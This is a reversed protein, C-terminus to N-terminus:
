CSKQTSRSLCAQRERRVLLVEEWKRKIEAAKKQKSELIQQRKLERFEEQKEKEIKKRQWLEAHSIADLFLQVPPESPDFPNVTNTPVKDLARLQLYRDKALQKEKKRAREAKKILISSERKLQKAKQVKCKFIKKKNAQIKENVEATFAKNVSKQQEVKMLIAKQTEQIKEVLSVRMEEAIRHKQIKSQEIKELLRGRMQKLESIRQEREMALIEDVRLEEQKRWQQFEYDDRLESLFRTLDYYDQVQQKTILNHSYLISSLTHQVPTPKFTLSKSKRQIGPEVTEIPRSAARPKTETLAPALGVTPPKIRKEPLSKSYKHQKKETGLAPAAVAAPPRHRLESFQFPVPKTPEFSSKKTSKNSPSNNLNTLNENNNLVWLELDKVRELKFRKLLVNEIYELEYFKTWKSFCHEKLTKGNEELVFQVISTLGSQKERGLPRSLEEIGIEFTEEALLVFYGAVYYVWKDERATTSPKAALLGDVFSLLLPRFREMKLLAEKMQFSEIHLEELYVDFSCRLRKYSSLIEIMANLTSM